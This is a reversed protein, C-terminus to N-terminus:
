VALPPGRPAPRPHADRRPSPATPPLATRHVDAQRGVAAPAPDAGLSQLGLLCAPCPRHHVRAAQELCDAPREPHASTDLREDGRAAEIRSSPDGVEVHLDVAGALLSAVLLLGLWAAHRRRRTPRRAFPTAAAPARLM